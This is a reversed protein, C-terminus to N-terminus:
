ELVADVVMEDRVGVELRADGRAGEQLVGGDV